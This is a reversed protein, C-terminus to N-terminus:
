LVTNNAIEGGGPTGWIPPNAGFNYTATFKQLTRFKGDENHQPDERIDNVPFAYAAFLTVVDNYRGVLETTPVVNRVGDLKINGVQPTAINNGYFRTNVTDNGTPGVVHWGSNDDQAAGFVSTPNGAINDSFDTIFGYYVGNKANGTFDGVAFTVI